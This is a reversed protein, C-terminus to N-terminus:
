ARNIIRLHDARMLRSLHNKARDALVPNAEVAIVNFGKKLYYFSDAGDNTGLDIILQDNRGFPESPLTEGITAAVAPSALRMIAPSALHHARKLLKIAISM